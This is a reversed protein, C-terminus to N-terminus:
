TRYNGHIAADSIVTDKKCKNALLEPKLVTVETAKRKRYTIVLTVM